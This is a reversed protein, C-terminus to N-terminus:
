KRHQRTEETKQREKAVAKRAEEVAWEGLKVAVTTCIATLVAWGFDERKGQTEM